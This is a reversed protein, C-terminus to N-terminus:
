QRHWQRTLCSAMMEFAGVQRMKIFSCAKLADFGPLVWHAKRNDVTAGQQPQIRPRNADFHMQGITQGAKGQHPQSFSFDFFRPFPHARGDLVGSQLKGAVLADRNVQCRSVQGLIRAPKIQWNCQAYESGAPLNIGFLHM